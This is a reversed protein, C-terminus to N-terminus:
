KQSFMKGIGFSTSWLIILMQMFTKHIHSTLLLLEAKTAFSVSLSPFLSPLVPPLFFFSPLSLVFFALFLFFLVFFVTSGRSILGAVLAFFLTFVLAFVSFDVWCGSCLVSYFGSCFFLYVSLLSCSSLV